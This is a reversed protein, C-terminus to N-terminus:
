GRGRGSPAPTKAAARPKAAPKARLKKVEKSLEDVQAQLAGLEQATPVGLQRLAKAVRDEFITELKGWQGSARSSLESAVSSMKQTAEAFKGETAAQTKRQLEQGEKVLADFVKGGEAQAKNFAGLGALWIQQASDKIHNALPPTDQASSGPPRSKKPM